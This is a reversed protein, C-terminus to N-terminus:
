KKCCASAVSAPTGEGAVTEEQEGARGCEFDKDALGDCPSPGCADLVECEGPAACDIVAECSNGQDDECVVRCSGDPLCETSVIECPGADCDVECASDNSPSGETATQSQYGLAGLVVTLALLLTKM